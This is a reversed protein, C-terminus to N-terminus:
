PCAGALVCQAFLDVDALDLVCDGNIDANYIDCGAYATHYADEDILAYVFPQIDFGDVTKSNATTPSGTTNWCVGRATVTSGGSSTVNGGSTATTDTVNTVATTTVTPVPPLPATSTTFSVQMGYGTGCSGSAYARVYYTTGPTLGTINSTFVGLGSGDVTKSDSITPSGTTNWCVGRATVSVGATVNGGSTATTATIDSVATTTVTPPACAVARPAVAM